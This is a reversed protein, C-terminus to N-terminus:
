PVLRDLDVIIPKDHTVLVRITRARRRARWVHVEYEGAPLDSLKTPTEFRRGGIEVQTGAVLTLFTVDGRAQTLRTKKTETEGVGDVPVLDFHHRYAAHEGLKVQVPNDQFFPKWARLRYSGPELRRIVAGAEGPATITAVRDKGIFIDVNAINTSIKVYAYKIPQLVFSHEATEGAEVRVTARSPTFGEKSASLAYAGPALTRQLAGGAGPEGTIGLMGGNSAHISVSAENASLLLIGLRPPETAREFELRVEKIRGPEILIARTIPKCRQCTARLEHRGAALEVDVRGGSGPRKIRLRRDSGLVEVETDAVSTAVRLRGVLPKGDDRGLEFELGHWGGDLTVWQSASQRGGPWVVRYEAVTAGRQPRVRDLYPTRGVAVGDRLVEAHRPNASLRVSTSQTGCAGGALLATTLWLLTRVLAGPRAASAGAAGRLHAVCM